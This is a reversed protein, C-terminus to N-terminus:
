VMFGLGYVRFWINILVMQMKFLGIALTIFRVVSPWSLLILLYINMLYVICKSIFIYIYM